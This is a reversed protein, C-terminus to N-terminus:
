TELAIDAYCLYHDARSPIVASHMVQWHPSLLIHDLQRGQKPETGIGVPTRTYGVQFVNPLLREISECNLDGTVITPQHSSALIIQEMAIRIPHFVDEMADRGFLNFPLAHGTLVVIEHNAFALTTRLFGKDHSILTAGTTVQAQLQPNPLMLYCVQTLNWRSLIALSLFQDGKLHSVRVTDCPMATWYPMDLANALVETQCPQNPIMPTHVEQLCLVDCAFPQLVTVFYSLDETDFCLPQQTSVFGGGINWTGIRLRQLAV